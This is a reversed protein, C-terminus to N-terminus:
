VEKRILRKNLSTVVDYEITDLKEAISKVSNKHSPKDSIIEVKDNVKVTCDKTLSVALADMSIRGVIPYYKGSITVCGVENGYNRPIGDGYGIPITAIRESTEGKYTLSYGVGSSTEGLVIIKAVRSILTVVPRIGKAEDCVEFRPLYGYIAIGPRVMDYTIDYGGLLGYSNALHCLINGNVSKAYHSIEEFRDIQNRNSRHDKQDACALHSYVGELVISKSKYAFDIAEKAETCTMGMRNMGTNVAIHVKIKIDSKRVVKELRMLDSVDQASVRLDYGIVENIQEFNIYGFVLIPKNTYKTTEVAEDINAVAYFDILDTTMPVIVSIEHGYANAKVPFCVKAGGAINKIISINKRIAVKNVKLINV